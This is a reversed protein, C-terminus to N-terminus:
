VRYNRVLGLSVVYMDAIQSRTKGERRCRNHDKEPLVAEVASKEAIREAIRLRINPHCSEVMALFSPDLDQIVHFCEHIITLKKQVDPLTDEIRITVSNRLEDDWEWAGRIDLDTPNTFCCITTSIGWYDKLFRRFNEASYPPQPYLQHFLDTAEQYFAGQERIVKKYEDLHKDPVDHNYCYGHIVRPSKLTFQQLLIPSSSTKTQLSSM